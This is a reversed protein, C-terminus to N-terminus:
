RTSDRGALHAIQEDLARRFETPDDWVTDTEAFPCGGHNAIWDLREADPRVRELEAYLGRIADHTRKEQQEVEEMVDRFEAGTSCRGLLVQNKDNARIMGFLDNMTVTTM